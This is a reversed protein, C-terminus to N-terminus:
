EDRLEAQRCSYWFLTSVILGGLAMLHIPGSDGIKFLDMGLAVLYLAFSVGACNRAIRTRLRTGGHTWPLGGRHEPCLVEGTRSVSWGADRASNAMQNAWSEDSDSDARQWDPQFHNLCGPVQCRIRSTM